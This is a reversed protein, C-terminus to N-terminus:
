KTPLCASFFHAVSIPRFTLEVRVDITITSRWLGIAGPHPSTQGRQDLINFRAPEPLHDLESEADVNGSAVAVDVPLAEPSTATFDFGLRIPTAMFALAVVGVSFGLTLKRIWM